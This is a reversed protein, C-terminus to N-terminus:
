HAVLTQWLLGVGFLGLCVGTGANLWRFTTARILTRGYSAVSALLVSWLL